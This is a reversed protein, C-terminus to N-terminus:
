KSPLVEQALLHSPFAAFHPDRHVLTAGNLSASAAIFTDIAAVHATAATRLRIAEQQVVETVEVVGTLLGRYRNLEAVRVAAGAGLLHMRLEFEYLSLVSIGIENRAEQFLAQVRESGNEAFYHALLASTDLLHTM